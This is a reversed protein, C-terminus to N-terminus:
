DIDEGLGSERVKGTSYSQPVASQDQALVLRGGDIPSSNRGDKVVVLSQHIRWEPTDGATFMLLNSNSVSFLISSTVTKHVRVVIKIDEWKGIRKNATDNEYVPIRINLLYFPYDNSGLEFLEIPVCNFQFGEQKQSFVITM